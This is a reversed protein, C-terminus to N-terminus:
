TPWELTRRQTIPGSADSRAAVSSSTAASAPSPRRPWPRRRPPPTTTSRAWAGRGRRGAPATGCPRAAVLERREGLGGALGARPRDREQGGARDAADVGVVLVVEDAQARDAPARHHDLAEAPRLLVSAGVAVHSAACDNRSRAVAAPAGTYEISMARGNSRGITISSDCSGSGRPGSSSGSAAAGARRASRRRQAVGRCAGLQALCDLVVVAIGRQAGGARRRQPARHVDVLHRLGLM